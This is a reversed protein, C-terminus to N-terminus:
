NLTFSFIREITLEGRFTFEAAESHPCPPNELREKEKKKRMYARAKCYQAHNEISNEASEVAHPLYDLAYDMTDIRKAMANGDATLFELIFRSYTLSDRWFQLHEDDTWLGSIVSFAMGDMTMIRFHKHNIFPEM